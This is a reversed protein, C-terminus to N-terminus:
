HDLHGDPAGESEMRSIEASENVIPDAGDAAPGELEQQFPHQASISQTQHTNSDANHASLPTDSETEVAPQPEEAIRLLEKAQSETLMLDGMIPAKVMREPQPETVAPLTWVAPSPLPPPPPVLIPHVRPESASAVRGSLKRECLDNMSYRKGRYEREVTLERRLAALLNDPIRLGLRKM